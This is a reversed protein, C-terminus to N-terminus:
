ASTAEEIQDLRRDSMGQKGWTSVGIQGTVAATILAARFERLRDITERIKAVLDDINATKRDLFAAITRQEPLYPIAVSLYKLQDGYIHMVTIGRGMCAKQYAAEPSDTAYGM